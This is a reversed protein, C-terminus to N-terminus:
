MTKLSSYVATKWFETAATILEMCDEENYLVEVISVDGSNEFDPAAVCFLGKKRDSMFMQLQM